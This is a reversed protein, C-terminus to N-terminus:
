APVEVCVRGTGACYCCTRGIGVGDRDLRTEIWGDGRCVVCPEDRVVVANTLLPPGIRSVDRLEASM